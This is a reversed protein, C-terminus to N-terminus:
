SPLFSPLSPLFPLPNRRLLLLVRTGCPPLCAPPTRVLSLGEGSTCTYGCTPNSGVSCTFGCSFSKPYRRLVSGFHLRALSRAIWRSPLLRCFSHVLLPFSLVLLSADWPWIEGSDRGFLARVRSLSFHSPLFSPLFPRGGRRGRGRGGVRLLEVRVQEEISAASSVLLM